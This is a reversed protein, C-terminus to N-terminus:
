LTIKGTRIGEDIEFNDITSNGCLEIWKYATNYFIAQEATVNKRALKRLLIAQAQTASLIKERKFSRTGGISCVVGVRNCEGTLYYRGALGKHYPKYINLLCLRYIYGSGIYYYNTDFNQGFIEIEEALPNSYSKADTLEQIKINLNKVSAELAEIYEKDSIM